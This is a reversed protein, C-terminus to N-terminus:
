GECTTDNSMTDLSLDRETSIIKWNVVGDRDQGNENMLWGKFHSHQDFFFEMLNFLKNYINAYWFYSCAHTEWYHYHHSFTNGFMQCASHM